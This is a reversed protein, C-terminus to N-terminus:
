EIPQPKHLSVIHVKSRSQTRPMSLYKQVALWMDRHSGGDADINLGLRGAEIAAKDSDYGEVIRFHLYWLGGALSSDRDYVYLPLEAKDAVIRNFADVSKELTLPSVELSQYRLGKAEFQRRAATDDEGPAVLHLVSRYGKQRLWDIGESLPKQGSAVNKRAFAFQPIAVPLVNDEAPPNDRTTSEGV